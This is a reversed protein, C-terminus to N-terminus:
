GAMSRSNRVISSESMSYRRGNGILVGCFLMLMGAAYPAYAEEQFVGNIAIAGLAFFMLDSRQPLVFRSSQGLPAKALLVLFTAFIVFSAVGMQYFLVGVASELAFDAGASQFGGAGTWHFGSVAKASLNGGAGIGHGWPTSILSNFGGLFGIVHFDQNQIGVWLGYGVYAIALLAAFTSLLKVNHVTTWVFYLALCGILLISAGKVGILLMMPVILFLWYAQRLSVALLGFLALVYAMSIPHMVTGGFRFNSWGTDAEGGTVNFFNSTENLVVDAPTYFINTGPNQSYKLQYYNVANTLGYFDIPYCYEVLSLLMSLMASSLFCLGITRFSWTRGVDIGIVVALLPASFERLYVLASTVPV